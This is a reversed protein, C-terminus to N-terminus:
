QPNASLWFQINSAQPNGPDLQLVKLYEERAHPIDRLQQSYLNGLELHSRVDDPNAALIKKLEIIADPAYGAANLALAFNYRADISNPEIALATEYSSLSFSYDRLRYAMVGSNYEAEFWGPDLHTARRYGDLADTFKRQAEAQRAEDFAVSAARRNGPAPKRPSLYLYRAFTPPAPQSIRVPKPPAPQVNEPPLPTVKVEDQTSSHFWHFPNYDHQEAPKIPQTQVGDSAYMEPERAPQLTTTTNQAPPIQTEPQVQVTETQERPTGYNSHTNQPRSQTSRQSQQRADQEHSETTVTNQRQSTNQPNSQPTGIAVAPSQSPAMSNVIGNVDDWHAPKPNLALYARYNELAQRDDRLYEHQVTALNLLAPAYDPRYQVAAQFFKEAEEPRGRDMRALGLGNLAEPNNTSLYRATSFSKEASLIDKTRLQAMGLKLWGEPANARRLTYATFEGVAQDPKNQELALCGLNYHAEMLDRNLELARQYANAAEEFQGSHEEAVGLYNWAEANTTMVETAAKLEDAAAAYDGEDLLKKGKILAHSGPPGCGALAVAFALFAIFCLLFHIRKGKGDECENKTTLMRAPPLM